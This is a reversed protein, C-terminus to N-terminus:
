TVIVFSQGFEVRETVDFFAFFIRCVITKYFIFPLSFINSRVGFVFATFILRTSAITVFLQDFLSLDCFFLRSFM